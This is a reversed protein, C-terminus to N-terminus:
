HDAKKTYESKKVKDGSYVNLIWAYDAMTQDARMTGPTRSIEIESESFWKVNGRDVADELLVKKNEQEYVFYEWSMLGPESNDTAHKCLVLTKSSNEECSFEDDVGYKTKAIDLYSETNTSQTTRSCTCFLILVGMMCLLCTNKM